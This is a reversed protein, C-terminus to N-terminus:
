LNEGLSKEAVENKEALINKLDVPYDDLEMIKSDIEDM